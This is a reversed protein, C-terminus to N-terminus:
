IPACRVLCVPAVHLSIFTDWRTDKTACKLPNHGTSAPQLTSLHADLHVTQTSKELVIHVHLQDRWHVLEQGRCGLWLAPVCFAVAKVTVSHIWNSGRGQPGSAAVACYRELRGWEPIEEGPQSRYPCNCPRPPLPPLTNLRQLGVHLAPTLSVLHFQFDSPPPSPPEWRTHPNASLCRCFM